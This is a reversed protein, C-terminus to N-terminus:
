TVPSIKRLELLLGHYAGYIEATPMVLSGSRAMDQRSSYHYFSLTKFSLSYHNYPM